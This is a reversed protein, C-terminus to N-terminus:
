QSCAGAHPETNAIRKNAIMSALDCRMVQVRVASRQHDFQRKSPSSGTQFPIPAADVM